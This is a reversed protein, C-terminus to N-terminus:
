KGIRYLKTQTRLFITNAALAPSALSMEDMSNASLQVYKDGGDIVFTHGDESLLYIKGDAAWPSASFTNGSGGARAKYIEKGTQSDFVTLIGNDNVVYMRGRYVLPSSTYASARPHFWAVYKNREEGKALSIDGSAGPRVAFVPRNSEGQSGTALYLLGEAAVPTPTSQGTLGGLRWLEKGTAPAYSVAHARGIVIVETRQAHKWIFPSSWGSTPGNSPLDRDIKWLQRGTKADIAAAFSKGDNDHVVYVRGDHVVPSAATGFDLYMPQPDFRATWLLTGNLSYAFLGVNGFYAYVREGDTAPTESAFTNKRHRGGFPAGKHAEREWKLKGTDADYAYVMYRIEGSEATLEIDRSVVRKVIEDDSLGQKALDAAYDNGFIGTSPAKFAAPSIASTVFVTNNWAIPSSWGRGKVEVSWAVNDKASWTTPLKGDFIGAGSPGRFQPWAVSPESRLVLAM